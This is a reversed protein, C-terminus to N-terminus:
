HWRLSESLEGREILNELVKLRILNSSRFNPDSFGIEMLGVVLGEIAKQLSVQPLYNPAMLFFKSFDVRYSRKDPAANCNISVKTDPLYKAVAEAIHKIRYNWDCSGINIILFREELSSKRTIAWDVARAMDEVHILPRWPSGDSLVKITGTSIASAVFDNLVLDLRLRQSMGCATAFRLCTIIMSSNNLLALQKETEIKSRSYATLPNVIDQESRPTDSGEGYVSCSSAFAFYKVGCKQSLKALRVASDRNIESTVLEFRKGMPDNSVAALCVVTDVGILIQESIDRTDGYIQQDLYSEPIKRESSLCQAFLGSDFGIIQARPYNIRLYRSLVSGIYGLNGVILIRM